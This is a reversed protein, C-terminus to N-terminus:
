LLSKIDAARMGVLEFIYIGREALVIDSSCLNDMYGSEESILKNNVVVGTGM